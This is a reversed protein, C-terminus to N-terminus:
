GNICVGKFYPQKEAMARPRPCDRHLWNMHYGGSVPDEHYDVRNIGFLDRILDCVHDMDSDDLCYSVFRFSFWFRDHRTFWIAPAGNGLVWDQGLEPGADTATSLMGRLTPLWAPAAPVVPQCALSQSHRGQM